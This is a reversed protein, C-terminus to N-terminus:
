WVPEPEMPLILSDRDSADIVRSLTETGIVLITSAAGSRIAQDALILGQLWGPCGFILDYAM